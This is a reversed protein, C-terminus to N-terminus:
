DVFVSVEEKAKKQIFENMEIIGTESDGADIQQSLLAFSKSAKLDKYSGQAEVFGLNM